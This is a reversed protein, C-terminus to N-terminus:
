VGNSLFLIGNWLKNCFKRYGEIRLVDLNIDRGSSTYSLLTFRLADAGCKPIGNPFDKRQGDKAKEVEKAGLNGNDLMANLDGLTIGNIVDTPDIVNGLSKSMKRGHSDRVMAHCFVKSFPVKGTFKLGFIVM